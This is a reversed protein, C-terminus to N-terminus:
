TDAAGRTTYARVEFGCGVVWLGRLPLAKHLAGGRSPQTKHRSGKGRMSGGYKGPPRYDWRGGERGRGQDEPKQWTLNQLVTCNRSRSGRRLNTRFSGRKKSSDCQLGAQNALGAAEGSNQVVDGARVISNDVCASGGPWLIVRQARTAQTTHTPSPGLLLAVLLSSACPPHGASKRWM